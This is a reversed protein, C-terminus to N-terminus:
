TTLILRSHEQESVTFNFVLGKDLIDVVQQVGIFHRIQEGRVLLGLENFHNTWHHFSLTFKFLTGGGLHVTEEDLFTFLVKVDDQSETWNTVVETGSHTHERRQNVATSNVPELVPWLVSKQPQCTLEEVRNIHFLRKTLFADLHHLVIM